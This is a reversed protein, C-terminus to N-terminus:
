SFKSECALGTLKSNYLTHKTLLLIGAKGINDATTNMSVIPGTPPIQM